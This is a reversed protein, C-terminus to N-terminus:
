IPGCPFLRFLIKQFNLLWFTQISLTQQTIFDAGKRQSSRQKSQWLLRVIENTWRTKEVHKADDSLRNTTRMQWETAHHKNTKKGSKVHCFIEIPLCEWGISAGNMKSLKQWSNNWNRCVVSVNIKSTIM